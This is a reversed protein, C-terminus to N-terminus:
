SRAVPGIRDRYFIMSALILGAGIYANGLISVAIAIDSVGLANWVLPMGLAIVFILIFLRLTSSTSHRVVTISSLIARLPGLESIFLADLTFFTYVYFWAWAAMFLLTGLLPSLLMVLGFLMALPLGLVVFAIIAGLVLGMFRLAYASLRQGLQVADAQGDRVVQAALGRFLAGVLVGLVFLALLLNVLDGGSSIAAVFRGGMWAPTRVDQGLLWSPLSLVASLLSILNLDSGLGSVVSRLAELSQATQGGSPGAAPSAAASEIAAVAQQALPEATLRPGLWYLLDLAVPLLLLYLHRNLTQFGNNLTEIVGPLTPPAAAPTNQSATM